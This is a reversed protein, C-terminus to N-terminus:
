RYRLAARVPRRLSRVPELLGHRDAPTELRGTPLPLSGGEGGGRFESGDSGVIRYPEGLNEGLGLYLSDDQAIAFGMLGNHPYTCKSELRVIETQGEAQGDGDRDTLRVLSSRTVVYVSGNAHQQVNMAQHLGEHFTSWRDVRGDGDTDEILRIRDAPPGVYDKPRMHTHSEIVLLRGRRDFCIGTPTVLEPETTIRELHLRADLVTPSRSPADAFAIPAAGHCIGIFAVVAVARILRLHFITYTM